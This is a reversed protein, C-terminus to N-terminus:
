LTFGKNITLNMTVEIPYGSVSSSSKISQISFNTFLESDKFSNKLGTAEDETKARAKITIPSGIKSNDLSLEEIIVGHPLTRGLTMIIDSYSPQQDLIQKINTFSVVMNDHQKKVLNYEEDKIQNTTIPENNSSENENNQLFLYISACSIALFCAAFIVTFLYKILISNVRAARIQKKTDAPLLNIM